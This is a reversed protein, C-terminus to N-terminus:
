SSASKRENRGDALHQVSSQAMILTVSIGYCHVRPDFVGVHGMLLQSGPSPPPIAATFAQQSEKM